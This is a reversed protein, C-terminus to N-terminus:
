SISGHERIAKDEKARKERRMRDFHNIAEPSAGEGMALSTWHPQPAHRIVQTATSGCEACDQDKRESCKCFREFKHGCTPCTYDFTPM